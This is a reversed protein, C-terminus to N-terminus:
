LSGGTVRSPRAPPTKDSSYFKKMYYGCRTIGLAIHKEVTSESIDLRQAIERQTYGYVKKLVFVKRCQKPLANVAECFLKFEEKASAEAQTQDASSILDLRDQEHEEEMSVAPRHETRRLYDLALNKATKLLFARPYNVTNEDEVQCLRVYTEQVIDEIERPPVIRSVARLLNKRFSLYVDTLGSNKSM